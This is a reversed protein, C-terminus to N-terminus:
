ILSMGRSKQGLNNLFLFRSGLYKEARAILRLSSKWFEKLKLTKM